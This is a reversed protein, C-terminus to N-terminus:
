GAPISWNQQSHSPTGAQADKRNYDALSVVKREFVQKFLSLILNQACPEQLPWSPLLTKTPCPRGVSASAPATLLCRLTSVMYNSPNKRLLCRWPRQETKPM